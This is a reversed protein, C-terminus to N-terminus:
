RVITVTGTFTEKEGNNSIEIVYVYSGLPLATGNFSGDWEAGAYASGSGSFNFVEDGWRDFINMKINEYAEINTIRFIDNKGDNNPTIVSPVILPIDINYTKIIKCNNVDSVTVTYNGAILNNLEADNDGTNWEYTYPSTGGNAIIEINGYNNDMYVSDSIQIPSPNELVLSLTDTCDNADYVTLSYTGAPINALNQTTDGNSWIYNYNPTGGEVWINVFATSDNYCNSGKSNEVGTSLLEPQTLQIGSLIYECDHSDNIVVSYEGAPVNTVLSDSVGNNWTYSYAPTGGVAEVAIFGTSDGFCKINAYDVLNALLESPQSLQIDGTSICGNADYITVQYNGASLNAITITDYQSYTSDVMLAGTYVVYSYGATGGNIGITASGNSQNYCRVDQTNILTYTGAGDDIVSFATDLSCNFSDIVTVNYTNQSLGSATNSHLTSDHAWAYDYPSVGGNATLEIEGTNGGCVSNTINATVTIPPNQTLELSTDAFCANDDYVTVSYNGASLSDAYNTNANNSWAYSYGNTITGGQPTISLYGDNGNYCSINKVSDVIISVPAPQSLNIRLTDSCLNTDSLVVTYEDPALNHLISDTAGNNLWNYNYVGTGGQPVVSIVGDNNGYCSITSDIHLFGTLEPFETIEFNYSSVCGADDIVQVSYNGASLNEIRNTDPYTIQNGNEDFWEYSFPATGGSIVSVVAYGLTDGYCKNNASDTIAIQAAFLDSITASTELSCYNEDVITVYYTGAPLNQAISDNGTNASASWTYSYDPTGGSPLVEIQGDSQQCHSNTINFSVSISDPQNITFSNSATCSNLDTVEVTYTGVGAYIDETNDGNSWSYQYPNTGGTVTINIFGDNYGFCSADNVTGNVELLDPQSILVSDKKTCLHEDTITVIYWGAVLDYISDGTQTNSWTYNYPSTGGNAEVTAYGNNEGFCKVNQYSTSSTLESPQNITVNGSVSCTHDDTVTVEYTNAQLNNATQTTQSLNDNWTYNYSSSATGGSVYVTANGNTYGFCSPETVSFSDIHLIAPQSINITTTATCTHDDTATVTYTGASLNNATYGTQVPSTSWQVNYMGSNTTGGSISVINAQGDTYGFCSPETISISDISVADPQSVNANLVQPCANADTLTVSYSGATLNTATAGTQNGTNADWQYSYPPTGGSTSISAEGDNYGFCSANTVSVVSNLQSPQNITFSATSSCGAEDSVTVTYNGAALNTETTGTNSSSSWAYSLSGTGGSGSVTASGDNLGYCTVHNTDTVTVVPGNEDSISITETNSCSNQDTVEVIYSGTPVNSLTQGTQVPSTNWSYSLTGTGGSATVHANGDSNGCHANNVSDIVITIEAPQNIEVSDTKTCTHADTITYSYTGSVLNNATLGTQGNAAADWQVTYSPTGGSISLSASGNNYGYCSADTVTASATIEAPDTLVFANPSNTLTCGNADTITAFYDGAQLGTQTSSTGPVNWAYNYPSTGGHTNHIIIQGDSYGNCSPNILQVSDVTLAAPESITVTNEHTCSHADTITVTYNGAHLGSVSPSTSGGANSDWQYNYPSTGGSPTVTAAGTANGNCDVNTVSFSSTIQAPQSITVSQVDECVGINDKVTVQYTGAQLNSISATHEGTSWEYTYPATGGSASVSAAGENSGYCDVDHTVTATATLGSVTFDLSNGNVSNSCADDVQGSLNLTYTGGATLPTNLTITFSRSYDSGSNCTISTVVYSGGPGTINFDSADVSSCLVRETFNFTIEDEGCAPSSTINDLLPPTNDVMTGSSSSFDIKYGSQSSSFNSVNIVYIGGEVVHVPANWQTGDGDQHSSTGSTSCGTTDGSGIAYNCSIELSNDYFIDACSANTLDYMAWDYDDSSSKPILSFTIDATQQATFVYWVDNVEGSSLCSSVGNIEDVFSGTNSYSEVTEYSNGCIPIAGLCDQETPAGSSSAVCSVSGHFGPDVVSGDSHWVLYLCGSANKSVATVTETISGDSYDGTIRGLYPDSTSTGDYIDLYDFGNETIFAFNIEIQEGANSSCITMAYDENNNYYGDSDYNSDYIDASCTSITQGNYADIEYSQSYSLISVTFLIVAIFLKRM